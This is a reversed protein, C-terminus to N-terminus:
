HVQRVFGAVPKERPAGFATLMAKKSRGLVKDGELPIEEGDAGVNPHDTASMAEKFPNAPAAVVAAKAPEAVVAPKAPEAVITETAAAVEKPAAALIGKADDVSMDTSLALHSALATRGEAEPLTQIGKIRDREATRAASAEAAATAEATVKPAEIAMDEDDEDGTESPDDSGLEGLFAAVADAPSEVADILGLALADDARFYRSQMDRIAQSDLGRNRAVIQIFEGYRKAIQAKIDALVDPPLAEFPNADAKHEDDAIVTAVIGQQKLSGSIDFHMTLVGISGASGSPTVYIKGTASAIAYAASLAVSDTVAVLPKVDRAQYIKECLEFCGAAEGGGSNIDFVIVTVDDDELAANMQAQVFNYGTVFGWSCAFRNILTGHVPIIAIGDSYAFIKSQVPDSGYGYMGLMDGQRKVAHLKELEHDATLFEQMDANFSQLNTASMLCERMNFRELTQRATTRNFLIM